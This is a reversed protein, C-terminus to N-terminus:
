HIFVRYGKTRSESSPTNVRRPGGTYYVSNELDGLTTSPKELVPKQLMEPPGLSIGVMGAGQVTPQLLVFM